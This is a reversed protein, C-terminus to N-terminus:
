YKIFAVADDNNDYYYSYMSFYQGSSLGWRCGSWYWGGSIETSSIFSSGLDDGGVRRIAEILPNSEHNENYSGSYALIKAKDAFVLPALCLIEGFSPLYWRKGALTGTLPVGPNYHAAYYFAPYVAQENAKVKGNSSGSADWTWHEGDFDSYIEPYYLPSPYTNASVYLTSVNTWFVGRAAFKLAMALHLGKDVVIAVATKSGGGQRSDKFKGTSGDSFLYTYSPFLKITVTYSTGQELKQSTASLPLSMNLPEWYLKGGTINLRIDKADSEPIVSHYDGISAYYYLAGFYNNTYSPNAPNFESVPTAPSNNTASATATGSYSYTWTSLDLSLGGGQPFIDKNASVNATIPTSFHIRGMIKTRFRCGVPKSTLHITPSLSNILIQQRGIRATTMKSAAVDLKNGNLTVDGNFFVFTYTQNPTLSMYAPSGPDPTFSNNSTFTGRLEGQPGYQDYARITYHVPFTVTRTAPRRNTDRAISVEAECDGFEYTQKAPTETARTIAIDEGFDKEEMTFGVKIKGTEPQHDDTKDSSCGAFLLTGLLTFLSIYFKTKM